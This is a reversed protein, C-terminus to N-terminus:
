RSSAHIRQRPADKCVTVSLIATNDTERAIEIIRQEIEHLTLAQPSSTGGLLIGHHDSCRLPGPGDHYVIDGDTVQIQQLGASDRPM